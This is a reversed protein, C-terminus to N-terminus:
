GHELLRGMRTTKETMSNASVTSQADGEGGSCKDDNARQDNTGRVPMALQWLDENIIAPWTLLAIEAVKINAM